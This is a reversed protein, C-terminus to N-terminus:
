PCPVILLIPAATEIKPVGQDEALLKGFGLIHPSSNGNEHLTFHACGSNMFLSALLQLLSVEDWGDFSFEKSTETDGLRGRTRVHASDPSRGASLPAGKDDVAGLGENCVPGNGVIDEQRYPSSTLTSPPYSENYNGRTGGPKRHTSLESLHTDM